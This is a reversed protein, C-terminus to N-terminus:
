NSHRSARSDPLRKREDRWNGLLTLLLYANFLLVALVRGQTARHWIEEDDRMLGHANTNCWGISSIYFGSFIVTSIAALLHDPGGELAKLEQKALAFTTALAQAVAFGTIVNALDWLKDTMM